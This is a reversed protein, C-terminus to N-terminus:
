KALKMDEAIAAEFEPKMVKAIEEIKPKIALAIREMMGQLRKEITENKELYLKGINSEFFKTLENLEELTYVEVYAQAMEDKHAEWSIYESAIKAGQKIMKNQVETTKEGIGLSDDGSVMKLTLEVQQKMADYFNKESEDFSQKVGSAVLLRLAADKNQDAISISSFGLLIFVIFYKM